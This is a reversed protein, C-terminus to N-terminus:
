KRCIFHVTTPFTVAFAWAADSGGYALCSHKLASNRADVEDFNAAKYDCTWLFETTFDGLSYAGGLSACVQRGNPTSRGTLSATAQLKWPFGVGVVTLTGMATAGTPAYRVTISCRKRFLSVDNPWLTRGSCSDATKKFAASGSLTVKLPTTPVLGNDRVVFTKSATTNPNITGYNHAAPTIAISLLKGTQASAAPAVVALAVLTLASLAAVRRMRGPTRRM